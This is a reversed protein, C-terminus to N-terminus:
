GAGALAILKTEGVQYTVRCQLFGPEDLSGTVTAQGRQVRARGTRTPAVGDKSLTWEVEGAEIPKGGDELRVNFTVVDGRNYIADARDAAALLQPPKTATDAAWVLPGVLVLACIMWSRRHPLNM